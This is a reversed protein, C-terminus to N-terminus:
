QAIAALYTAIYESTNFARMELLEAPIRIHALPGEFVPDVTFKNKEIPFTVDSVSAADQVTATIVAHPSPSLTYNNHSLIYLLVTHMTNPLPLSAM